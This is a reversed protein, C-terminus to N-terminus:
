RHQMRLKFRDINESMRHVADARARPIRAQFIDREVELYRVNQETVDVTDPPSLQRIREALGALDPIAPSM